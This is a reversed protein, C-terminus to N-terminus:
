ALHSAEAEALWDLYWTGFTHTGGDGRKAPEMEHDDVRSDDWIQGTAPGSVVLWSRYGCGATSLCAAGHDRTPDERVMRVLESAWNQYADDYEDDSGFAARDPEAQALEAYGPPSDPNTAFPQGLRALDTCRAEDNFRGLDGWGWGDPGRRLPYLGYDPGAGGAGVRLLFERYDAPLVVGFQREAAVVEDGSLPPHSEFRHSESGFVPKAPRRACALRRLRAPVGSWDVTVLVM